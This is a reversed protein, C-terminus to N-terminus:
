LKLLMTQLSFIRMQKIANSDIIAIELLRQFYDSLNGQNFEILYKEGELNDVLGGVRLTQCLAKGVLTKFRFKPDCVFQNLSPDFDENPLTETLEGDETIALNPPISIHNEIAIFDSNAFKLMEFLNSKGILLSKLYNNLFNSNSQINAENENRQFDDQDSIKYFYKIKVEDNEIELSVVLDQGELNRFGLYNGSYNKPNLLMAIRFKDFLSKKEIQSLPM